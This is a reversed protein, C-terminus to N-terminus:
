HLASFASGLTLAHRRLVSHAGPKRSCGSAQSVITRSNHAENKANNDKEKEEEEEEEEAQKKEQLPFLPCLKYSTYM